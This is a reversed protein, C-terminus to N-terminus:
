FDSDADMLEAEILNTRSHIPGLGAVRSSSRGGPARAAGVAQGGPYRLPQWPSVAPPGLPRCRPGRLGLDEPADSLPGEDDLLSPGGPPHHQYYYPPDPHSPRFDPYSGPLTDHQHDRHPHRPDSHPHRPGAVLSAPHCPLKPLRPVASPGFERRRHYGQPDAPEEGELPQVEKVGGAGGVARRKKKRKKRKIMEPSIEAEVM